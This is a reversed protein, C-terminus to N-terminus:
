HSIKGFEETNTPPNKSVGSKYRSSQMEVGQEYIERILYPPRNKSEIYIRGIYEGLIGICILQLSGIFLVAAFISAYGPVDIGYIITRLVIYSGYLISLFALFFGVYSWLRLPVTSFSTIGELAFNWLKWASFKTTGKTRQPRVYEVTESRFGVWSFLGKMFRQSESLQNLMGVVRRDILRFDGVNEPLQTDAIANHLRYFLGASTRKLYSDSQRNSRKALVMDTGSEWRVIMEPILELPDQLDSDMPIMADGTAYALGATLAAEKGFNRSLELVRYRHDKNSLGILRNLTTDHSGDDICVIEFDYDALKNILVELEQAFLQICDQENYFPVILSIRKKRRM